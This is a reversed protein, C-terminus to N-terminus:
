KEGTLNKLLKQLYDKKKRDKIEAITERILPVADAAKTKFRSLLEFMARKRDWTESRHIEEVIQNVMPGANQDNILRAIIDRLTLETRVYTNKFFAKLLQPLVKKSEKQLAKMASERPWWHDPDDVVTALKEIADEPVKGIANLAQAACDRVYFESDELAAVLAPMADTASVVVERDMRQIADCTGRRVHWHQHELAKILHPLADGGKKALSKAAQDRVYVSSDELKRILAPADLGDFREQRSKMVNLPKFREEDSSNTQAKEWNAPISTIRPRPTSGPKAKIGYIGLDYIGWWLKYTGEIAIVNEGKRLLGPADPHMDLTYHRYGGKNGDYVFRAIMWGNLYASAIHRMRFILRLKEIKTDDLNFRIRTFCYKTGKPYVTRTRKGHSTGVPMQGTQWKSDDFGPLQWGAPVNASNEASLFLFRGDKARARKNDKDSIPLLETWKELTEKEHLLYGADRMM